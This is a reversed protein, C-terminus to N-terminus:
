LCLKYYENYRGNPIQTIAFPIQTTVSRCNVDIGGNSNPKTILFQAYQGTSIRDTLVISYYNTNDVHVECFTEPTSGSVPTYVLFNAFLFGSFPLPDIITRLGSASTYASQLPKLNTCNQNALSNLGFKNQALNQIYTSLDNKSNDFQNQINILGTTLKIDFNQIMPSISSITSQMISLQKSLNDVNKSSDNLDSRLSLSYSLLGIITGVSVISWLIEFIQRSVTPVYQIYTKPSDGPIQIM